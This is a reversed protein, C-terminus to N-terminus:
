IPVDGVGVLRPTAAHVGRRAPVNQGGRGACVRHGGDGAAARRDVVRHRAIGDAVALHAAGGAGVLIALGPAVRVGRHAVGEHPALQRSAVVLAVEVAVVKVEGAGRDHRARHLLRVGETATGLAVVKIVVDEAKIVGVREHGAHTHLHHLRPSTPRVRTRALDLKSVVRHALLEVVAGHSGRGRRREALAARTGRVHHRYDVELGRVGDGAGLLVARLWCAKRGYTLVPGVAHFEVNGHCFRLEILHTSVPRM